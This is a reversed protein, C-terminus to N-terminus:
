KARGAGYAPLLMKVLFPVFILLMGGNFLNPLSRLLVYHILTSKKVPLHLYHQIRM